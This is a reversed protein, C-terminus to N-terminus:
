GEREGPAGGLTMIAPNAVPPAELCRRAANCAFGWMFGTIGECAPHHEGDIADWLDRGVKVFEDGRMEYSGDIPLNIDQPHAELHRLVLLAVRRTADDYSTADDPAAEIWARFAAVDMGEDAAPPPDGGIITGLAREPTVGLHAGDSM